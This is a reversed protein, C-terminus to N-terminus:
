GSVFGESLIADNGLGIMFYTKTRLGVANIEIEFYKPRGRWNHHEVVTIPEGFAWGKVEVRARATEVTASRIM